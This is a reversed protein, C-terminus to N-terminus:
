LSWKIEQIDNELCITRALVFLYDGLRNLFETVVPPVRESRNLKLLSRETRRCVCRAIHCYSVLMNGGPLIFSKLEPLSREMKDIEDELGPVPNNGEILRKGPAFEGESCLSAACTMLQEQIYILFSRRGANQDVDRLLGIWSILEELAGQAEVRGHLKSVRKGGALSTMGKDGSRTYIKM